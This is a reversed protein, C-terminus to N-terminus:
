QILYGGFKRTAYWNRTDKREACHSYEAVYDKSVITLNKCAHAIDEVTSLLLQVGVTAIPFRSAHNVKKFIIKRQYNKYLYIYIYVIRVIYEINWHCLWPSSTGTTSRIEKEKWQLITCICELM